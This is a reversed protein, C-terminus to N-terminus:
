RHVPAILPEDAPVIGELIQPGMVGHAAAGSIKRVPELRLFPPEVVIREVLDRSDLLQNKRQDPLAPSLSTRGSDVKESLPVRNL